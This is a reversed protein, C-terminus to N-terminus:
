GLRGDLYSKIFTPLFLSTDNASLYDLCFDVVREIFATM